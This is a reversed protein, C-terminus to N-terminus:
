ATASLPTTPVPLKLNTIADNLAGINYTLAVKFNQVQQKTAFDIASNSLITEIAANIKDTNVLKILAEVDGLNALQDARTKADAEAKAAAQRAQLAALTKLEADTLPATGTDTTDAM